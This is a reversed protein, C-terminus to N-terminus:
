KSILQGNLSKLDFNDIASCRAFLRRPGAGTNEGGNWHAREVWNILETSETVLQVWAPCGRQAFLCANVGSIAFASSDVQRAARAFRGSQSSKRLHKAFRPDLNV